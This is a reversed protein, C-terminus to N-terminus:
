QRAGRPRTSQFLIQCCLILRQITAGGAPAHISVEEQAEELVALALDRGGRARPNFRPLQGIGIHGSCDRGGRARPNFRIAQDNVWYGDM